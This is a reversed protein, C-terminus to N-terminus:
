LSSVTRAADKLREADKRIIPGELSGNGSGAIWILRRLYALCRDMGETRAISIAGEQHQSVDHNAVFSDNRVERKHDDGSMLRVRDRYEYLQGSGSLPFPSAFRHNRQLVDRIVLLGRMM